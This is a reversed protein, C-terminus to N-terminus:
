LTNSQTKFCFDFWIQNGNLKHCLKQLIFLWFVFVFLTEDEEMISEFTWKGFESDWAVFIFLYECECVNQWHNLILLRRWWGGTKQEIDVRKEMILKQSNPSLAEQVKLISSTPAFWPSFLKDLCLNWKHESVLVRAKVKKWTYGSKGVAGWFTFIEKIACPFNTELLLNPGNKALNDCNLGYKSCLLFFKM